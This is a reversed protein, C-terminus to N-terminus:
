LNYFMMMELVAATLVIRGFPGRLYIRFAHGLFRSTNKVSRKVGYLLIYTLTKIVMRM